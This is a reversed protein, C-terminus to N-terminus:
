EPKGELQAVKGKLDQVQKAMEAADQVHDLGEGNLAEVMVLIAQKRPDYTSGEERVASSPTRTGTLIYGVDVGVEAIRALYDADPSRKGTEYNSQAEKRVGGVAGMETQNM